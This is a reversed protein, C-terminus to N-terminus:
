IGANIVVENVDELELLANQIHRMTKSDEESLTIRNKPTYTNNHAEFMWLAAGPEAISLHFMALCHRVAAASRNKNDTLTIILMACGSPGYTEYVVRESPRNNKQMGSKIAREITDTPINYSRAKEIATRLGSSDRDGNAKQAEFSIMRTIKSFLKSKTSDASSKKHKIKSWKSHGAM